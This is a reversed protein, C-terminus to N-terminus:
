GALTARLFAAIDAIAAGADPLLGGLEVFGHIQGAYDREQAAVGAARLRAAYARGEDRLVDYEATLILAPPLSAHSAAHLPSARWDAARAKDPFYKDDFFDLADQTLPPVAANSRRSPFGVSAPSCDVCPYILVQARLAPAGADRAALCVVASLNGGASDGGIALRAPDLGLDAAPAAPWNRAGVAAAAGAPALADRVRAPFAHEPALRYGVAAGPPGAAVALARCVHDHSELDGITWGGGHLYILAPQPAATLVPRYLRLGIPGRPGPCTLNSVEAIEAKSGGFKESKFRYMARAQEVTLQSLPPPAAKRLIDFYQDIGAAFRM